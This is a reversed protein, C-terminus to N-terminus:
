TQEDPWKMIHTHGAMKSYVHVKDVLNTQRDLWEMIHCHKKSHAYIQARGVRNTTNHYLFKVIPLHGNKAAAIIAWMSWSEEKNEHLWKVVALHGNEAAIDMADHSYSLANQKYKMLGLFGREAAYDGWNARFDQHHDGNQMRTIYRLLDMNGLVEFFWEDEPDKTHVATVEMQGATNFSQGNSQSQYPPQPPNMISKIKDYNSM